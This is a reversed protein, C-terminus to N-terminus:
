VHKIQLDHSVVGAIEHGLPLSWDVCVRFGARKAERCFYVDEGMIDTTGDKYEKKFWPLPMEKFLKTRILTFAMGIVDVDALGRNDKDEPPTTPQFLRTEDNWDIGVCPIHQGASNAYRAQAWGGVIDVNHALLRQVYDPGWEMDSDIFLLYECAHKVALEALVNRARGIDQGVIEGDFRTKSPWRTQRWSKFFWRKLDDSYYPIGVFLNVREGKGRHFASPRTNGSGRCQDNRGLGLRWM